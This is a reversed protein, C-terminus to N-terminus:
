HVVADCRGCLADETEATYQWCRPCKAMSPPVVTLQIQGNVAEANYHWDLTSPIERNIHVASVIFLEALDNEYKTLLDLDGKLYVEAGLSSRVLKDSRAAELTEQVSKRLKLLTEFESELATETWSSPIEPWRAMFPSELGSTIARPAHQWVEQCLLPTIPALIATYVRFIQSLVYQAALRRPSEFGDAYLRDKIVDFYLASLESSMHSQLRKVVRNFAFSEYDAKCQASLDALRSLAYRDIPTLSSADTCNQEFGELNGLMFKFTMRLKKVLSAVQDVIIPSLVVDSTYDAQAIWLRMGDIGVGSFKKGGAILENPTVVNGLSKSMKQGKEDLVFGHTIVNKFPAHAKRPKDLDQVAIRTLLSSQFWGRHQDSGELYYDAEPENEKTPEMTWATGSDFWVDLIENCKVYEHQKHRLSPPLWESIDDQHEFWKELGEQSNLEELRGVVSQVSEPTLLTANTEKHFFAPIPVGWARQRSICWESRSSTFAKLRSRGAEPVFVVDDLSSLAASKIGAVDAFFQPTSRVMVPKKSRWDFPVSHTISAESILMGASKVHSIVEAQGETRAVMGNLSHLKQEHEGHGFVYRGQDDIPSYTPIGHEKCLLYDEKGHGPANHVLGTGSTDTVYTAALVPYQTSDDRLPCTYKLGVLESGKFIDSVLEASSGLMESAREVAVIICGHDASRFVGYDMDPNVAISRNAPLTWPTTTWIALSVGDKFRELQLLSSSSASELKVPYKVTLSASTKEGYELESEALATGSEVSWYVPRDQRSILKKDVMKEFVKLQRIVYDVTLTKYVAEDDWDAMVGFRIFSEKQKEIMTLALERALKRKELISLQALKAGGMKKRAKELAAQEIPLGHCDWGPRYQVKHGSMVNYRNTIDKLTKNLAHGLHLEGNAYPPGDQFVKLKSKGTTATNKKQWLYLKQGTEDIYRDIDAPAPRNKLGTKPLFLTDAYKKSYRRVHQLVM